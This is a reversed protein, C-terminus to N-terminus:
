QFAIMLKKGKIEYEFDRSHSMIKMVNELSQNKFEGNIGDYSSKYVEGYDVVVEVDYWEELINMVNSFTENRFYLVGDKWSLVEKENFNDKVFFRNNANYLLSQGPELIDIHADESKDVNISVKTKGTVLSVRVHEQDPYAKINFSTGLATTIIDGSLVNFSIEKNEAVEFFAEGILEIDRNTEGFDSSYQISSSSNLIVRSGDRLSITSKQGRPNSKEVLNAIPANQKGDGSFYNISWFLSGAAILLIIVAAIKRWGHLYGHTNRSIHISRVEKHDSNAEIELREWINAKMKKISVSDAPTEAERAVEKWSSKLFATVEAEKEHIVLWKYIEELEEETCKNEKLKRFLEINM